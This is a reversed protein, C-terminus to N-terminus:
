VTVAIWVSLLQSCSRRSSRVAAAEGSCVACRQAAASRTGRACRSRLTCSFLPGGWVPEWTPRPVRRPTPDRTCATRCSWPAPQGHWAASRGSGSRLRNRGLTLLARRLLLAVGAQCTCEAAWGRTCVRRRLWTGAGASVLALELRSWAGIEGWTAGQAIM